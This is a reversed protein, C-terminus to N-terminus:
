RKTSLAALLGQAAEKPNASALIASILAIGHAGAACVEPVREAAIGGIAFVPCPSQSVAEQLRGVGQPEGYAAKSPTFYVPGFVIFDAGQSARIEELSHTSAGILKQPGLLRRAEAVPFSDQGLHVGDAEVALAVDIRDNVLLLAGYRRTLDRLDRALLYLDRGSLDKERLQVARVGGELAAEVVGM